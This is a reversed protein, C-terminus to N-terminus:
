LKAQDTYAEGSKLEGTLTPSMMNKNQFQNMKNSNTNSILFIFYGM